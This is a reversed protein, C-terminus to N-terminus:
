CRADRGTFGRPGRLVWARGARTAVRRGRVGQFWAGPEGLILTTTSAIPTEVGVIDAGLAVFGAVTAILPLPGHARVTIEIWLRTWPSMQWDGAVARRQSPADAGLDPARRAIFAGVPCVGDLDLLRLAPWSALRAVADREYLCVNGVRVPEGAFGARLVDRAQRQAVGHEGLLAVAERQTLPTTPLM